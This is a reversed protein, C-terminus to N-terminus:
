QVPKENVLDMQEILRFVRFGEIVRGFVVTQGDMFTLPAGLTVYFQCENSDPVGGRKCMGLLGPETHKVHFSEDAFEGDFKSYGYKTKPFVKSLDGAQVYMGKVVRHIETNAYSVKENLTNGTDGDLKQHGVCLAKFNDCTKPCNEDFLEIVIKQPEQMGAIQLSMHVYSRGPTNNIATRHADGALKRYILISTKDTYRFEQLAWELFQETGGVYTTGNVFVIPSGKHQYFAGKQLNQLNKL